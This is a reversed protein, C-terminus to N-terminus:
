NRSWKLSLVVGRDTKTRILRISEQAHRNKLVMRMNATFDGFGSDRRDAERAIALGKETLPEATAALPLLTTLLLLSLFTTKM